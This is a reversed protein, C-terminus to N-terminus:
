IKFGERNYFDKTIGYCEVGDEKTFIKGNKDHVLKERARILWNKNKPKCDGLIFIYKCKESCVIGKQHLDETKIKKDLVKIHEIFPYRELLPYKTYSLNEVKEVIVTLVHMTQCITKIIKENIKCVNSPNNNDSIIIVATDLRNKKENQDTFDKFDSIKNNHYNNEERERLNYKAAKNSYDWELQHSIHYLDNINLQVHNVYIRLLQFMCSDWEPGGLVFDPILERYKQYVWNRMAVGDIGNIALDTFYNSFDKPEFIMQPLEQRYYVVANASSKRLNEYFDQSIPCDTNTCVLWDDYGAYKAGSDFIDKLFPLDKNFGLETIANRNLNEIKWNNKLSFKDEQNICGVLIVNTKKAVDISKLTLDQVQRLRQSNLFSSVNITHVIKINSDVFAKKVIEETTECDVLETWRQFVRQLPCGPYKWELFGDKTIKVLDKIDGGFRDAVRRSHVYARETYTGHFCHVLHVNIYDMVGKKEKFRMANRWWFFLSAFKDYLHDSDMNLFEAVFGGDGTGPICWPNFGEMEEFFSRNMAWCVGPNQKIKWQNEKHCAVMSFFDLDKDQTDKMTRFGQVLKDLNGVLKERIKRYWSLDESFVDGDVFILYKCEKCHQAGINQLAEKQFMNENAESGYLKIHRINEGEIFPYRSERSPDTILEVFVRVVPLDQKLCQFFAIKDSEVRPNRGYCAWIVATDIM